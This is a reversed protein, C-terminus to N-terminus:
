QSIVRAAGNSPIIVTRKIGGATRFISFTLYGILPDVATFSPTQTPATDTSLYARGSPSFCLYAATRAGNQWDSLKTAVTAANGASGGGTLTTGSLDQGDVQVVNTSGGGGGGGGAAPIQWQQSACTSKAITPPCQNDVPDFVQILGNGATTGDSLMAVLVPTGRSMARTRADRVISGAQVAFSFVHRDMSAKQMAPIAIVALISILIVVVM